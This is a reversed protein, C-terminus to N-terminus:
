PAFFAGALQDFLMDSRHNGEGRWSIGKLLGVFAPVDSGPTLPQGIGAMDITRGTAAHWASVIPFLTRVVFKGHEQYFGDHWENWKARDSAAKDARSELGRIEAAAIRQAADRLLPEFTRRTAQGADDDNKGPKAENKEAAQKQRRKVSSDGDEDADDDVAAKAKRKGKGPQGGQENWDPGGGAPQMNLAQQLDDGGPKPNLGEERRVENKTKWGGQIAVNNAGYRAAMAGRELEDLGYRTFHGRGNADDDKLILDRNAAEEFRVALPRLSYRVFEIGLQEVDYTGETRVGIMHPPVGFFRCIDLANFNLSELWQTDRNSLGLEHLEMGDQLIPPNGANEPGAHLKRWGGRFNRIADKTWKSGQPRSIWFTPLGGNRFLSAGHTQQAISLGITASAYEIVSVGTIGNLTLGRVHFIESAAYVEKVGPKPTYTYRLTNDPLQEVTMRDPNLPWLEFEYQADNSPVIRAYFNGRLCVHTVGMEKFEMPTQWRNPRQGLIRALYHDGDRTSTDADVQKFVQWPLSGLSERLVRVCAYVAGTKMAIDPKVVIGSATPPAVPNYWFPDLPGPTAAAMPISLASALNFM